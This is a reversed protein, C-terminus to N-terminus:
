SVKLWRMIRNYIYLSVHHFVLYVVVAATGLAGGVLCGAALCLTFLGLLDTLELLM